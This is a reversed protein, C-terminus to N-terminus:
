GRQRMRRARRGADTRQYRRNVAHLQQRRAKGRCEQSCSRQGRDFQSCVCFVAGGSRCHRTRLVIESM